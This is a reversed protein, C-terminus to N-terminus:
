FTGALGGTRGDTYPHVRMGLREWLPMEERSVWFWDFLVAAGVGIASGTLAGYTSPSDGEKKPLPFAYGVIYGIGALVAPTVIRAGGSWGANEAPHLFLHVALPCVMYTMGGTVYLVTSTEKIAFIAQPVVAADCLMIQWGYWRKPVNARVNTQFEGPKAPDGAETKAPEAKAPEEKPPEAKPAAPADDARATAAAATVLVGALAAVISRRLLPM